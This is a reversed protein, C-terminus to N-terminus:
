THDFDFIGLKRSVVRSRSLYTCSRCIVRSSASNSGYNDLARVDHRHIRRRQRCSWAIVRVHRKALRYTEASRSRSLEYETYMPMCLTGFKTCLVRRSAHMRGRDVSLCNAEVWEIGCRRCYLPSGEILLVIVHSEGVCISHADPDCLTLHASQSIGVM